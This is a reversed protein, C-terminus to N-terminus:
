KSRPNELLCIIGCRKRLSLGAAAGHLDRVSHLLKMPNTTEWMEFDLHPFGLSQHYLILRDFVYHHNAILTRGPALEGELTAALAVNAFKSSLLPGAHIGVPFQDKPESTQSTPTMEAFLGFPGHEFNDLYSKEPDYFPESFM